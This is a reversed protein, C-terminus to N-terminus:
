LLVSTSRTRKTSICHVLFNCFSTSRLIMFFYSRLDVKAKALWHFAEPLGSAHVGGFAPQHKGAEFPWGERQWSPSASFNMHGYTLVMCNNITGYVIDNWVFCYLPYAILVPSALLPRRRMTMTATSPMWGFAFLM